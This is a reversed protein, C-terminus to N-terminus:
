NHPRRATTESKRARGWFSCRGPLGPDAAGTENSMGLGTVMNRVIELARELDKSAGSVIDGFIIEEAVRGGLLIAIQDRLESETSLFKEEVPLQVTYGLAAVGRLTNSM